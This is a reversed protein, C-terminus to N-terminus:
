GLTSHDTLNERPARSTADSNLHHEDQPPVAASIAKPQFQPKRASEKGICGRRQVSLNDEPNRCSSNETSGGFPEKGQACPIKTVLRILVALSM